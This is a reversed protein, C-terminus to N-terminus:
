SRHEKLGTGTHDDALRLRRELIDYAVQSATTDHLYAYGRIRMLAEAPSVGLQAIVMGAAQYVEIRTLDSLEQWADSYEDNLAADFDMSMLDLLPLTALDAALLAGAFTAVDFKGPTNRYLDLAGVPSAAVYVPLAFVAHVGRRLAANSFSPWRDDGSDNLDARFAPSATNIAEICPGEGLTFQLEGLERGMPSSAGYSRSPAGDYMVSLTAGDVDLLDVCATCLRDAVTKGPGVGALSATFQDRLPGVDYM